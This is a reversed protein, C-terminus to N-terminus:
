KGAMTFNPPFQFPTGLDTGEFNVKLGTGTTGPPLLKYLNGMWMVRYDGTSSSIAPNWDHRMYPSGPAPNTPNRYQMTRLILMEDQGSVSVGTFLLEYNTQNFRHVAGNLTEVLNRAISEKSPGLLGSMKPIAVAAMIGLIAVVVLMETLTFGRQQFAPRPSRISPPAISM